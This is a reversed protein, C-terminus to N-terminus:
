PNKDGMFFGGDEAPGSGANPLGKPGRALVSGVLGGIAASFIIITIIIIGIILNTYLQGPV